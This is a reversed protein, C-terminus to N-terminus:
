VRRGSWDQASRLGLSIGKEFEIIPYMDDPNRLNVSVYAGKKGTAMVYFSYYNIAPLYFEPESSTYRQGTCWDQIDEVNM